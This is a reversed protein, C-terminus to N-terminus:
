VALVVKHYAEMAKEASIGFKALHNVVKHPRNYNMGMRAITNVGCHQYIRQWVHTRAIFKQCCWLWIDTDIGLRAYLYLQFHHAVDGVEELFGKWNGKPIEEMVEVVEALTHRITTFQDRGQTYREIYESTKM